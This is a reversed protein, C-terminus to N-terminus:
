EAPIAKGTTASIALALCDDWKGYAREWSKQVPVRPLPRDFERALSRELRGFALFESCTPWHGFVDRCWQIAKVVELVSYTKSGSVQDRSGSERLHIAKIGAAAGKTVLRRAIDVAKDWRGFDRELQSSSPWEEGIKRRRRRERDYDRTRPLAGLGHVLLQVLLGLQAHREEAPEPQVLTAGIMKRLDTLWEIPLAPLLEEILDLDTGHAATIVETIADLDLPSADWGSEPIQIDSETIANTALARATEASANRIGPEAEGAEGARTPEPPSGTVDRLAPAHVVLPIPDLGELGSHQRRAGRRHKNGRKKAASGYGTPRATTRSM